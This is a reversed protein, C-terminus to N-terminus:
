MMLIFGSGDRGWPVDVTKVKGDPLKVELDELSEIEEVTTCSALLFVAILVFHLIKMGVEM